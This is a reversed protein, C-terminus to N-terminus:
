AKAAGGALDAHAEVHVGGRAEPCGVLASWQANIEDVRREMLPIGDCWALNVPNIHADLGLFDPSGFRVADRPKTGPDAGREEQQAIVRELFRAGPFPGPSQYMSSVSLGVSESKHLRVLASAGSFYRSFAM